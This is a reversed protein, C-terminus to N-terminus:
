NSKDEENHVTESELAISLQQLPATPVHHRVDSKSLQEELKALRNDIEVVAKAQLSREFLPRAETWLASAKHLEGHCFHLDGLTRMCEARSQHVDMWTFGDLAVTLISLADNDM